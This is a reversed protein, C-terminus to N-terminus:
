LAGPGYRMCRRVASRSLTGRGSDASYTGLKQHVAAICDGRSWGASWAFNPAVLLGLLLCVVSLRITM